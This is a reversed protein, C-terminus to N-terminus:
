KNSWNAIEEELRIRAAEMWPKIFRSFYDVLGVGSHAATLHRSVPDAKEEASGASPLPEQCIQCPMSVSGAEKEVAMVAKVWESGQKELECIPVKSYPAIGDSNIWKSTDM